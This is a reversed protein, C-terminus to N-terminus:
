RPVQRVEEIFRDNIEYILELHRPLIAWKQPLVSLPLSARDTHIRPIDQLSCTVFFYQQLV